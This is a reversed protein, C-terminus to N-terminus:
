PNVSSVNVDFSHHKMVVSGGVLTCISALRVRDTPVKVTVTELCDFAARVCPTFIAMRVALMTSPVIAPAALLTGRAYCFSL